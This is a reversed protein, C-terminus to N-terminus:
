SHKRKDNARISKRIKKMGGVENFMMNLKETEVQKANLGDYLAERQLKRYNDLRRKDLAGDEIAARVACNPEIYHTCDRFHCQRALADIDSFSRSLDVGEVGLERMGPTDIVIGGQPLVILERSTTTHRGKDDTRIDSTPLLDSKVLLNVLTSKGVGSSGVFSATVGPALYPLLQKLSRSDTSSTTVIDVDPAILSVKQLANAVDPCLDTKTLVVIPVAGSAWVASLYRELRNQNFDANLSTCYFVYDINTAVVQMECGTGAAKREFVSERALVRHIIVNGSRADERDCMVFDGVAPYDQTRMAEHRFRGSIEAMYVGYMTALRYIGKSQSIVRALHLDPYNGAEIFRREHAGYRELNNM